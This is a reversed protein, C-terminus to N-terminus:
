SCVMVSFIGIKTVPKLLPRAVKLRAAQVDDRLEGNTGKELGRQRTWFWGAGDGDPERQVPSFSTRGQANPQGVWFNGQWHFTRVRKEGFDRGGFGVGKFERSCTRRVNSRGTYSSAYWAWRVVGSRVGRVNGGKGRDPRVFSAASGGRRRDIHAGVGRVERGRVFVLM